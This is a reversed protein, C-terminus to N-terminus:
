IIIITSSLRKRKKKKLRQKKVLQKVCDCRPRSDTEPVSGVASAPYGIVM